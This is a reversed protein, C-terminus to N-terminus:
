SLGSLRPDDTSNVSRQANSALLALSVREGHGSASSREALNIAANVDRDLHAGCHGCTWARQELKLTNNKEGCVHCLKSSPFFRDAKSVSVGKWRSKYEIQRHFEAIGADAFARALRRNKMMGKINLTEMRIESLGSRNTIESTTKHLHDQRICATRYHCKSLKVATAKRRNSRKVRRALEKNLQRLRSLMRKLPKPSQFKTGDNLTALDKLGVDIGLIEGTEVLTPDAPREFTLTVFWKDGRYKIFAKRIAGSFRPTERMRLTGIVPLNVVDGDATVSGVGNDAQYKYGTRKISRFQPFGVKPGKRKGKRSQNWNKISAGLNVIANKGANASLGKLWPYAAFKVSNFRPRLDMDNRWENAKLGDKFDRLAHNYAVRAAGCHQRLLSAQKNNVILEIQHAIINVREVMRRSYWLTLQNAAEKKEDDSLADLLKKHKHSRSRYLRASFVTIIELVDQALEEEFTPQDGKHIIVVEIGHLECLTFILESGFRLLRDKHTMVLRDKGVTAVHRAENRVSHRSRWDKCSQIGNGYIIMSKGVNCSM